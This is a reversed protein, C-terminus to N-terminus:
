VPFDPGPSFNRIECWHKGQEVSIQAKKTHASIYKGLQERVDKDSAAIFNGAMIAANVFGPVGKGCVAVSIGPPMNLMAQLAENASPDLPWSLPVGIVVTGANAIAAIAGPLAAAMSAAAIFLKVGAKIMTKCYSELAAPNRHASIYSLEWGVWIEDLILLAKSEDLIPRDNKSGLVICLQEPM